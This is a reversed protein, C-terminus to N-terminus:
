SAKPVSPPMKLAGVEPSAVFFIMAGKRSYMGEEGSTKLPYQM